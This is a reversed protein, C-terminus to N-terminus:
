LSDERSQEARSRIHELNTWTERIHTKAREVYASGGELLGAITYLANELLDVENNLQDLPENQVDHGKKNNAPM